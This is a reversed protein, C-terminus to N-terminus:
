RHRGWRDLAALLPHSDIVASFSVRESALNLGVVSALAVARLPRPLSTALAVGMGAGLANAGCDGLMSHAALDSPLSGVAAGLVAAASLDDRRALALPAGVLVVLKGARGPRLDCLNVLNATGAVLATDVVLDLLRLAPSSEARQLLVAAAAASVGVGAIKVLGSTLQGRRLAGLHGRFGKAETTGCLDDYAGTVGAGTVAVAAALTRRPRIGARAAGTASGAAAGALAAAVAVPGELLTVSVGAHNARLWPRQWGAAAGSLDVPAAGGRADVPAAGVRAELRPRTLRNGLLAAAAAAGGAVAPGLHPSAV